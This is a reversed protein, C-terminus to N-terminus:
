KCSYTALAISMGQKISNANANGCYGVGDGKTVQMAITRGESQWKKIQKKAEILDDGEFKDWGCNKQPEANPAVYPETISKTLVNQLQSRYGSALQYAQSEVCPRGDGQSYGCQIFEISHFNVSNTIQPTQVNGDWCFTSKAEQVAIGFYTEFATSYNGSYWLGGFMKKRLSSDNANSLGEVVQAMMPTRPTDPYMDNSARNIKDIIMEKSPRFNNRDSGNKVQCALFMVDALAQGKVSLQRVQPNVPVDCKLCSLVNTSSDQNCTGNSLKYGFVPVVPQDPVATAKNSPESVPTFETKGCATLLSAVVLTVIVHNNKKM